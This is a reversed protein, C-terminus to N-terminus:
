AIKKNKRLKFWLFCEDFWCFSTYNMTQRSFILIRFFQQFIFWNWTFHYIQQKGDCFRNWSFDQSKLWYKIKIIKVCINGKEKSRKKNKKKSELNLIFILCIPAVLATKGIKFCKDPFTPLRYGIRWTFFGIKGSSIVFYEVKERKRM